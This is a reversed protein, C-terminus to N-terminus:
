AGDFDEVQLIENSEEKESASEEMDVKELMRYFVYFLTSLQRKRCTSCQFYRRIIERDKCFNGVLNVRFRRTGDLFLPFVFFFVSLVMLGTAITTAFLDSKVTACIACARCANGDFPMIPRSDTQFFEGDTVKVWDVSASSSFASVPDWTCSGASPNTQVKSPNRRHTSLRAHSSPRADHRQPFQLLCSRPKGHWYLLIPSKIKGKPEKSCKGFATTSFRTRQRRSLWLKPANNRAAGIGGDGDNGGGRQGGDAVAELWRATGMAPRATAVGTTERERSVSAGVVAELLRRGEPRRCGLVTEMERKELMWLRGGVVEELVGCCRREQRRM